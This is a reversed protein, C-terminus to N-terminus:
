TKQVKCQAKATKLFFPTNSHLLATTTQNQIRLVTHLIHNSVLNLFLLLKQYVFVSLTDM